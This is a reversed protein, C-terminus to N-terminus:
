STGPACTVTDPGYLFLTAPKDALHAATLTSLMARCTEPLMTVTENLSNTAVQNPALSCIGGSLTFGSGVITASIVGDTGVQLETVMGTCAKAHATQASGVLALGLLTPALQGLAVNRM